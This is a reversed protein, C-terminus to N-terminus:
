KRRKGHFAKHVEKLQKNTVHTYIQTTTVSSHGLMEQVSRIDAGNAILDTAFSHRLTHPHVDKVIGAKLAYHKVIRQISRPTLRLNDANRKKELRKIGIRAFVAPDVDPRKDLYKELANKARDSIFVVRIKGGKGRVSFEQTKLNVQDRNLNTLESVRLGSSYLLEIIARDRLSKLDLGAVAGFIRDIEDSDLFEVEMRQTKGLEIKDASLAKVDRKALYKLFNRVAIIHYNQTIKKLSKGKEDSMRNLYLRYSRILGDTIDAPYKIKAWLFFRELYHDYNEITKQSRDKEIELYELYQTKLEKLNM